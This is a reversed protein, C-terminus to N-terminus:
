ASVVVAGVGKGETPRITSVRLLPSSVVKSTTAGRGVGVSVESDAVVVPSDDSVAEDVTSDDLLM